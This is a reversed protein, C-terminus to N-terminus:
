RVTVEKRTKDMICQLYHNLGQDPDGSGHNRKAAEVCEHNGAGFRTDLDSGEDRRFPVGSCLGLLACSVIVLTRM